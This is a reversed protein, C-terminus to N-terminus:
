FYNETVEPLLQISKSLYQYIRKDSAIEFQSKQAGPWFWEKGARM